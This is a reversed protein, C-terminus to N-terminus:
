GKWVVNLNSQQKLRTRAPEHLLLAILACAACVDLALGLFLWLYATPLELLPMPVHLSFRHGLELWHSAGSYLVPKTSPMTGVARGAQNQPIRTPVVPVVGFPRSFETLPQWHYTEKLPPVQECPSKLEQPNKGQVRSSKRIAHSEAQQYLGIMGVPELGM